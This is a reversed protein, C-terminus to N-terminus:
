SVVEQSKVVLESKLQELFKESNSVAITLGLAGFRDQVEKSEAAKAFEAELRQIIAPPTKAPAMFGYFAATELAKFGLERM